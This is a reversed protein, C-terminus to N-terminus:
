SRDKSKRKPPEDFPNDDLEPASGSKESDIMWQWARDLLLRAIPIEDRGFNSNSIFEDNQKFTRRLSVKYFTQKKGDKEISNEFVGASIGRHKFVQVPKDGVAM